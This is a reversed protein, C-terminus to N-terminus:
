GARVGKLSRIHWHTPMDAHTYRTAVTLMDVIFDVVCNVWIWFVFCFVSFQFIFINQAPPPFTTCYFPCPFSGDGPFLSMAMLDSALLNFITMKMQSLQKQHWKWTTSMSHLLHQTWLLKLHHLLLCKWLSWIPIELWSGHSGCSPSRLTIIVRPLSTMTSLFSLSMVHIIQCGSSANVDVPSVDQVSVDCCFLLM